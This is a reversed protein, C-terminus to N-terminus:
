SNEPAFIIRLKKIAQYVNARAAAETGGLTYAVDAYSLGQYKRMILAARQKQPLAEVANAVVALRVRKDYEELPTQDAPLDDPDVDVLRSSARWSRKLFTLAVNTAIKYLWARYNARANLRAYAQFARLFTDQLCDEADAPEGVMRWLYAFIETSHADVLTDFDPKETM